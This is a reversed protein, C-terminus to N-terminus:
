AVWSVTASPQTDVAAAEDDRTPVSPFSQLCSHRQLSCGDKHHIILRRDPPREPPHQFELVGGDDLCRIDVLCHVNDAVVVSARDLGGHDVEHHRPHGAAFQDADEVITARIQWEQRHSCPQIDRLKRGYRHQELWKRVLVQQGCKGWENPPGSSQAASWALSVRRRYCQTGASGSLTWGGRFQDGRECM